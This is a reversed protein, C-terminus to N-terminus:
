SHPHPLIQPNYPSLLQKCSLAIEDWLPHRDTHKFIDALHLIKYLFTNPHVKTYTLHAKEILLRTYNTLLILPHNKPPGEVNLIACKLSFQHPSTTNKLIETLLNWVPQIHTCHFFRHTSDQQPHLCLQCEPSDLIHMKHLKQNTLCTNRLVLYQLDKAEILRSTRALKTIQTQLRPPPINHTSSFKSFNSWATDDFSDNSILKSLQKCGKINPSTLQLLPHILPRHNGTYTAIKKCKERLSATLFSILPISIKDWNALPLREKLQSPPLINFKEDTVFTLPIYNYNRLQLSPSCINSFPITLNTPVQNLITKWRELVETWFPGCVPLAREDLATPPPQALFFVPDYSNPILLSKWIDSSLHIRKLWSCQLSAWHTTLHPIGLGGCTTPTFIIKKQSNTEKAM